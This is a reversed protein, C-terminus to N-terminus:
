YASVIGQRRAGATAQNDWLSNGEEDYDAQLGLKKEIENYREVAIEQIADIIEAVKPYNDWLYNDFGGKVIAGRVGGGLYNCGAGVKSPLFCVLDITDEPNLLGDLEEAIFSAPIGLGGGRYCIDCEVQGETEAKEWIELAKKYAKTM